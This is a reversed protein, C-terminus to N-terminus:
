PKDTSKETSSAHDKVVYWVNAEKRLTYSVIMRNFYPKGDREPEKYLAEVIAIGMKDEIEVNMIKTEMTWTTDQFWKEHFEIFDSVSDTVEAKPLILFMQGTPSMTEKLAQLDKGSVANLHKEITNMFLGVSEEKSMEKNTQETNQQSGCSYLCLVGAILFARLQNTISIKM